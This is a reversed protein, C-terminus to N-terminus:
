LQEMLNLMAMITNIKYIAFHGHPFIPHVGPVILKVIASVWKNMSFLVLLQSFLYHFHTPPSFIIDKGPSKSSPQQQQQQQPASSPPAVATPVTKESDSIWGQLMQFSRSQTVSFAFLHYTSDNKEIGHVYVDTDHQIPKRAAAPPPPAPSQRTYSNSRSTRPSGFQQPARQPSPANIRRNMIVESEQTDTPEESNSVYERHSFFLFFQFFTRVYTFSFTALRYTSDM